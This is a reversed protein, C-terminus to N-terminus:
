GRCSVPAWSSTPTPTSPEFRQVETILSGPLWVGEKLAYWPLDAPFWKLDCVCTDVRVGPILYSIVAYSTGSLSYAVAQDIAAQRDATLM